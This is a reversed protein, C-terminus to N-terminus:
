PALNQHLRLIFKLMTSEAIVEGIMSKILKQARGLALMQSVLLNIIFAKLGSGYQLVGPMDAPFQGKVTSDCAPCQKIEADVHEIVKEFLIDIKTRREVHQCPTDKLDQGCVDCRSVKALIVTEITRTNAAALKSEPKGKGNTGPHTSEDPETQSPPISSNKSTKKTTKELFIAILLNILVMMSQILFRCEKNIKKDECLRTFESQIREAEERLSEKNVTSMEQNMM